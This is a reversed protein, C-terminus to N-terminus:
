PRQQVNHNRPPSDRMSVGGASSHEGNLMWPDAGGSAFTQLLHRRRARVHPKAHPNHAQLHLAIFRLADSSITAMDGPRGKAGAIYTDAASLAASM